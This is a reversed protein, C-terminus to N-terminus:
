EEDEPPMNKRLVLEALIKECRLLENFAFMTSRHAKAAAFSGDVHEMLAQNLEEMLKHQQVEVYRYQAQAEKVRAFWRGEAKDLRRDRSPLETM